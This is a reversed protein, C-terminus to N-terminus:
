GRLWEMLKLALVVPRHLANMFFVTVIIVVVKKGSNNLHTSNDMQNTSLKNENIGHYHNTRQIVNENYINSFKAGPSM